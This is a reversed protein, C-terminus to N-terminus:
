TVASIERQGPEGGGGLFFKRLARDQQYSLYPQPARGTM